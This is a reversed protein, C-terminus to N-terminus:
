WPDGLGFRVQRLRAFLAESPECGIRALSCCLAVLEDARPRANPNAIGEKLAEAYLELAREREGMAFWAEALPRLAAGRDISIIQERGAGFEARAQEAQARAGEVDGARFRLVALHARQVVGAEPAWRQGDLLAQASGILELAHTSDEHEIASEALKRLLEVRLPLPTKGWGSEIRAELLARREATAYFREHLAVFAELANRTSDLHGEAVIADLNAVRADFEEASAFSAEVAAVRGSESASLGQEFRRAESARGLAAHARAIKSLIRDRQWDQGGSASVDQAAAEAQLLQAAVLEPAAGRQACHFAYDAQLAGRRWTDMQEICRLAREAQGLELLTEVVEGQARARNKVHPNTPFASAAQFALELLEVRYPELAANAAASPQSQAVGALAQPKTDAGVTAVLLLAALLAGGIRPAREWNRSLRISHM